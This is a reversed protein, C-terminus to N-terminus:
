GLFHIRHLYVLSHELVGDRHLALETIDEEGGLGEDIMHLRACLVTSPLAAEKELDWQGNMDRAGAHHLVLGIIAGVRLIHYLYFEIPLRPCDILLVLGKTAQM